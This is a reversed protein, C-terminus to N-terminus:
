PEDTLDIVDPESGDASLDIIAQDDWECTRAVKRQTGARSTETGHNWDQARRKGLATTSPIASAWRDQGREEIGAIAEFICGLALWGFSQAGFERGKSLAVQWACWSRRLVDEASSDKDGELAQRVHRVQAGTTDRLRSLMEKRRRSDPYRQAITGIFVEEEALSGHRSSSLTRTVCIGHLQAKYHSFLTRANEYLQKSIDTTKVFREVRKQVPGIRPDRTNRDGSDSIRTAGEWIPRIDAPLDIDRYLQGIARTSPYFKASSPTTVTEPAAWDPKARSKLKPITKQVVPTGSKPYDVANSHLEALKYCDEDFIGFESQDAITLWSTAIIGVVKVM